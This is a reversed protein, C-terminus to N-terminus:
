HPFAKDQKAERLLQLETLSRSVSEMSLTGQKISKEIGGEQAVSAAEAAFLWPDMHQSVEDQAETEDISRTGFVARAHQFRGSHSLMPFAQLLQSEDSLRDIIRVIGANENALQEDAFQSHTQAVNRQQMAPVLSREIAKLITDMRLQSTEVRPQNDLDVGPLTTEPDITPLESRLATVAVLVRHRADLYEEYQEDIKHNMEHEDSHAPATSVGLDVSGDDQCKELSEEIWATLQSRTALIAALRQHPAYTTINGSQEKLNDLAAKQRNARHQAQIVAIELVKLKQHAADALSAIQGAHDTTERPILGLERKIELNSLRYSLRLAEFEDRLSVLRGHQKQRRLLELHKDLLDSSGDGLQLNQEPKSIIDSQQAQRLAEAHRRKADENAKAAKLYEGHLGELMSQPGSMDADQKIRRVQLALYKRIQQRAKEADEPQKMSPGLATAIEQSRADNKVHSAM